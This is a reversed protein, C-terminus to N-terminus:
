FAVAAEQGALIQETDTLGKASMIYISPGQDVIVMGGRGGPWVKNQWPEKSSRVGFLSLKSYVRTARCGEVLQLLIDPRRPESHFM